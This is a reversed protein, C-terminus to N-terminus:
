SLHQSLWVGPRDPGPPDRATDAGASQAAGSAPERAARLGHLHACVPISWTRPPRRPACLQRSARVLLQDCGSPREVARLPHQQRWRRLEAGSQTKDALGAPDLHGTIARIGDGLAAAETCLVLAQDLQSSGPGLDV